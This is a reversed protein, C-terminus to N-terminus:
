DEKMMKATIEARIGIAKLARPIAVDDHWDDRARKFCWEAVERLAGAPDQDLLKELQKM